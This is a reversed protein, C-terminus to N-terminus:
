PVPSKCCLAKSLLRAHWLCVLRLWLETFYRPMWRATWHGRVRITLLTHQTHRPNPGVNVFFVHPFGTQAGRVSIDSFALSEGERWHLVRGFRWFSVGCFRHEIALDVGTQLHPGM